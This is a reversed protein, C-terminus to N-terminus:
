GAGELRLRLSVFHYAPWPGTYRVELRSLLPQCVRNVLADFEEEQTRDILFAANVVMRPGIPDALKAAVAAAALPDYIQRIYEARRQDAALQLLEGMQAQIAMAEHPKATSLRKNAAAIEPTNLDDLFSDKQWLVKLGVEIKGALVELLHLCEARTARLVRPIMAAPLVYGFAFPIVTGQQMIQALVREHAATNAATPDPTLDTAVSVIAQLDDVPLVQLPPAPDGVGGLGPPLERGVATVGYLYFLPEGSAM